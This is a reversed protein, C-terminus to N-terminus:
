SGTVTDGCRPIEAGLAPATRGTVLVTPAAAPPGRHRLLVLVRWPAAGTVDVYLACRCVDRRTRRQSCLRWRPGPWCAPRGPPCGALPPVAVQAQRRPKLPSTTCTGRRRAADNDRLSSMRRHDSLAQPRSAATQTASRTEAIDRRPGAPAAATAFHAASSSCFWVLAELLRRLSPFSHQCSAPVGIDISQRPAQAPRPELREVTASQM